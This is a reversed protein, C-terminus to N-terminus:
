RDLRSKLESIKEKFNKKDEASLPKREIIQFYRAMSYIGRGEGRGRRVKWLGTAVWWDVTRVGMDTTVDIVYKEGVSGEDEIKAIQCVELSALLDKDKPTTNKQHHEKQERKRERYENWMESEESM